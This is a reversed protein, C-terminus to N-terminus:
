ESEGAKWIEPVKPNGASSEGTQIKNLLLRKDQHNDYTKGKKENQLGGRGKKKKQTRPRPIRKKKSNNGCWGM